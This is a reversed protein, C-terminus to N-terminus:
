QDNGRPQLASRLLNARAKSSALSLYEDAMYFKGLATLATQDLYCKSLAWLLMWPIQCKQWMENMTKIRNRRLWNLTPVDAQHKKCWKLANPNNM